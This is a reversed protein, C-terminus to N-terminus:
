ETFRTVYRAFMRRVEPNTEQDYLREMIGRVGHASRVLKEGQEKYLSVATQSVASCLADLFRQRISFGRGNKTPHFFSRLFIIASNKAATMPSGVRSAIEYVMAAIVLPSNYLSDPPIKNTEALDTISLSVFYEMTGRRGYLFRNNEQSENFFVSGPLDVITSPQAGIRNKTCFRAIEVGTNDSISHFYDYPLGVIFSGHVSIGQAHIKKIKDGYYRAPSIGQKEIEGVIHKNIYKLNRLDLSELGIFFHTGGSRRIKRLLEEDNAVDISIQVAYNICLDSAIIRDLLNHLNKKGLLLNDPTFFFYRNKFNVPGKQALRLEAVFDDPDRLRVARQKKPLTSISCFHCSFPCGTYPAVPNIRFDKLATWRIGPLKNLMGIKLPELPEVNDFEGWIGDEILRYGTYDPKLRSNSLDDLLEALTASDGSGKVITIIDPRPAYARIFTDVDEPTTSVHIGGLVVPIGAHNLVLTVAAAAPFNSSMATIFVARPLRKKEGIVRSFRKRKGDLMIVLHDKALKALQNQIYVGSYMEIALTDVMTVRQKELQFDVFGLFNDANLERANKGTLYSIVEIPTIDRAPMLDMLKYTLPNYVIFYPASM